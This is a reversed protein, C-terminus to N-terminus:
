NCQLLISWMDKPWSLATAIKEFATFYSDVESERFTPVLAIHRGVDFNKQVAQPVEASSQHLKQSSIKMAEVELEKLRIEKDIELKHMKLRLENEAQRVREKEQAELQLRLLRVRLKADISSGIAEPSFPEFRPLTAPPDEPKTQGEVPTTPVALEDSRDPSLSVSVGLPAPVDCVSVDVMSVGPGILIGLENLKRVLVQKVNKKVSSRSIPINFHAAISLLDDKRCLDILELSPQSLFRQLDFSM